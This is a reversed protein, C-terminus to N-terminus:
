YGVSRNIVSGDIANITLLPIPGDDYRKIQGDREIIQTMTGFFDWCPVLLGSNRKNQETVRTLGFQVRDITIEVGTLNPNGESIGDWANVVPVMTEFVSIAEQYSLVNSNETVTGTVKYPSRWEMYVVGSDDVAISMDEYAWPSSESGEESKMCDWVTYTAPLGNVSRAYRFFWVCKRPNIFASQDATRDYSGGYLKDATVCALDGLGLAAVIDDAKKKADEKSISLEPIASLEEETMWGSLGQNIASEISEKTTFYSNNGAFANKESSYNMFCVGDAYNYLHLSQYVDPAPQSLVFLEEGGGDDPDIPTFKSGVPNRVSQDPATKLDEQLQTLNFQLMMGNKDKPSATATGENVKSIAAQIQLIKDQIESKSPKYDNGSFLDGKMLRQVLTDAQQQTINAQEVRQITISGADPVFVEANVHIKVKGKADELEKTYTKEAGMKEMLENVEEAGATATVTATATSGAEGNGGAATQEPSKTKTAEEIMKDLNKEKVIAQTPTAQCSSVSLILLVALLVFSKKRM